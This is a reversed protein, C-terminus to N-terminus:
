VARRYYGVCLVCVMVTEPFCIGGNGWFLVVCIEKRVGQIGTEAIFLPKGNMRPTKLKYAKRGEEYFMYMATSGYTKATSSCPTGTEFMCAFEGVCM